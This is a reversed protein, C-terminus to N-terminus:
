FVDLARFVSRLPLGPFTHQLGPAQTVLDTSGM